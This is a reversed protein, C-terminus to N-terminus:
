VNEVVVEGSEDVYDGYLSSTHDIDKDVIHFKGPRTDYGERGTSVISVGVLRHGKYFYARQNELDIIIHPRGSIGDGDWYSINDEGEEFPIGQAGNPIFRNREVTSEYRSTTCGVLLIVLVALSLTAQPTGM